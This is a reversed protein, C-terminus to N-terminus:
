LLWSGTTYCYRVFINSIHWFVVIRTYPACILLYQTNHEFCIATRTTKDYIGAPERCAAQHRGYRHSQDISLIVANTEIIAQRRVRSLGNDSAINTHQTMYFQPLYPVLSAVTVLQIFLICDEILIICLVCKVGLTHQIPTISQLFDFSIFVDAHVGGFILYFTRWIIRTYLTTICLKTASFQDYSIVKDLTLLKDTYRVLRRDLDSWLYFVWM